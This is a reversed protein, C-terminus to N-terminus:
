EFFNLGVAKNIKLNAIHKKAGYYDSVKKRLEEIAEDETNSMANIEQGDVIITARVKDGVKDEDAVFNNFVMEGAKVTTIKVTM